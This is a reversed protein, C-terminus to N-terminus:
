QADLEMFAVGSQRSQDALDSTVQVLASAEKDMRLQDLLTPKDMFKLITRTKIPTRLGDSKPRVPHPTSDKACGLPETDADHPLPAM